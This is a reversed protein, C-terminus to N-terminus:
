NWYAIFGVILLVLWFILNSIWGFLMLLTDALLIMILVVAIFKNMIM